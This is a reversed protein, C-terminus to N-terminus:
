CLGKKRKRLPNKTKRMKIMQFVGNTKLEVPGEGKIITTATRPKKPGIIKRKTKKVPKAM